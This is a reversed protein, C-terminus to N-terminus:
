PYALMFWHKVLGSSSGHETTVFREKNKTAM